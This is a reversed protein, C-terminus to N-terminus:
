NSLLASESLARLKSALVEEIYLMYPELRRLSMDKINYVRRVMERAWEKVQSGYAPGVGEVLVSPPAWEGTVYQVFVSKSVRKSYSIM